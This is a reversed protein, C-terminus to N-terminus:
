RIYKSVGFLRQADGERILKEGNGWLEAKNWVMKWLIARGNSIDGQSSLMLFKGILINYAQNFTIFFSSFCTFILLLKKKKIKGNNTKTIKLMFYIFIFLIAIISIRSWSLLAMFISFIVIILETKDIKEKYEIKYFIKAMVVACISAAFIGMTNSNGFTGKYMPFYIGHKVIGTAYIIMAFIISMRNNHELVCEMYNRTFAIQLIVYCLLLGTGYVIPKLTLYLLSDFYFALICFTFFIDSLHYKPKIVISFSRISVLLLFISAIFFTREYSQGWQAYVLGSLLLCLVLYSYYRKNTIIKM